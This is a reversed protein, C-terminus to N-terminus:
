YKRSLFRQIRDQDQWNLDLFQVVLSNVPTRKSPKDFRTVRGIIHIKQSASLHLNIELIERKELSVATQFEAAGASIIKTKADFVKGAVRPQEEPFLVSFSLSIELPFRQFSRRETQIARPRSVIVSGGAPHLAELIEGEWSYIADKDWFKIRVPDKRDFHLLAIHRLFELTIGAPSNNVIIGVQEQESGIVRSVSVAEETQLPSASM